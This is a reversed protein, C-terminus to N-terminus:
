YNSQPYFGVALSHLAIGLSVSEQRLSSAATGVSILNGDEALARVRKIPAMKSQCQHRSLM